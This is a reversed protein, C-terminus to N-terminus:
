LRVGSNVRRMMTVIVWLIGGTLLSAWWTFDLTPGFRPLFMSVTIVIGMLLAGIGGVMVMNKKENKAQHFLSQQIIRFIFWVGFAVSSLIVALIIFSSFLYVTSEVERFSSTVLIGVGRLILMWSMLHLVIGLLFPIM